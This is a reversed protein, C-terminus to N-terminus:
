QTSKEEANNIGAEMAEQAKKMKAKVEEVTEEHGDDVEAAAPPQLAEMQAM